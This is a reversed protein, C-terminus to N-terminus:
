WQPFERVKLDDPWEDWEGGHSDKLHLFKTVREPELSDSPTYVDEEYPWTGLQKIFPAALHKACAGLSQRWWNLNAPHPADSQRQRSAGGMILMDIDELNARWDVFEFAPEYSVFRPGETWVSRLHKLRWLTKNSTVSVGPWLNKPWDVGQDALWDGFEELRKAQKTLWMGIHPSGAIPNVIEELLFEFPVARSLADAMDSIFILRPMEKPIWPKDPREVGRLDKWRVAAKVRGPILRVDKFNPSYKEPHSVALSGAWRGEHLNGAYCDFKGTAPNWLECGDCGSTPNITSDCWQITTEKM